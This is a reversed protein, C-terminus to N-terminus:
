PAFQGAWAYFPDGGGFRADTLPDSAMLPNGMPEASMDQAILRGFKGGTGKESPTGFAEILKDQGLTKDQYVPIALKGAFGTVFASRFALDWSDPDIVRRLTAWCDIVNAFVTAGEIAYNRLIIPNAGAQSLFAKPPGIRDGPLEFSKSWGNDPVAALPALKVTKRTWSWDHLSFVHDIFPQWANEIQLSLDSGDDSSFIPGVGLETLAWNTITAQDISM